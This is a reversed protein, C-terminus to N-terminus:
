ILNLNKGIKRKRLSSEVFITLIVFVKKGPRNKQRGNPLHHNSTSLIQFSTKHKMRLRFKEFHM